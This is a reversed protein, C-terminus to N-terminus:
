LGSGGAGTFDDSFQTTWGSPASPISANAALATATAIVPAIVAVGILLLRTRRSTRRPARHGSPVRDNSPARHSSPSMPPGGIPTHSLARLIAHPKAWWKM